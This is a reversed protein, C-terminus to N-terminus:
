CENVFNLLRDFNNRDLADIDIECEDESFQEYCKPCEDRVLDILQGLQEGTLRNIRNGLNRREEDTVQADLKVEKVTHSAPEDLHMASAGAPEHSVEDLPRKTGRNKVMDAWVRDFHQELDSAMRHIDSGELNYRKANKFVLRFDQAFEEPTAYMYSMLYKEITGIDMPNKIIKPYDPIGLTKWDVAQLFPYASGSQQVQRLVGRCRQWDDDAM